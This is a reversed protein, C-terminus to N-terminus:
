QRKSLRATKWDIGMTDGLAKLSDYKEKLRNVDDLSACFLEVAETIKMTKAHIGDNITQILPAPSPDTTAPKAQAFAIGSVSLL